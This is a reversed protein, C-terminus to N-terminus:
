TTNNRKGYGQNPCKMETSFEELPTNPKLLLVGAVRGEAKQFKGMVEPIFFEPYLLAIYPAHPGKEVVWEVEETSNV